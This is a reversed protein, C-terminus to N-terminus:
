PETHEFPLLAAAPLGSVSAPALVLGVVPRGGIDISRTVPLRLLGADNLARVATPAQVGRQELEHLPVFLGDPIVVAAPSVSPDNLTAVISAMTARVAPNLRMPANFTIQRPVGLAGAEDDHHGKASTSEAGSAARPPEPGPEPAASADEAISPSQPQECPVPDILSYQTGPAAVAPAPPMRAPSPRQQPEDTRRVLPVTLPEVCADDLLVGPRSVKAALLPSKADPPLITWTRTGDDQPVTVGAEQLLELITETSKPIGALEDAELLRQVDSAAQPWVLFLGENGLWVRSKDRNPAWASDNTMKWRMADVLHRVVHPGFRPTGDSDSRAKLDRDIVLASARRVLHDLVNHERCLPVGSISALLHPVIVSNDEALFQLTAPPVVMPMAFLGLGRSECALHRHWHVFYRDDARSDLWQSLPEICAPWITGSADTATLHGLPRHLESCLGGIFTGLRWRPELHRRMSITSRGSFIHADTGQLSFFAVELGLRLLGGPACHYSDASAPLLHVYAAYRLLLPQVQAEFMERSIGFCLRIRSILDECTSLAEAASSRRIGALPTTTPLHASAM